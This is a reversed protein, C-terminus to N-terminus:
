RHPAPETLGGSTGQGVRVPASRAPSRRVARSGLREGLAPVATPAALASLAGLALAVLAVATTAAPSQAQTLALLALTSCIVTASGLAVQPLTPRPM